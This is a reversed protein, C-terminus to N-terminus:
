LLDREITAITQEIFEACQQLLEVIPKGNAAAVETVTVEFAFQVEERFPYNSRYLEVGDKLPSVRPANDPRIWGMTFPKGDPGPGGIRFEGEPGTFMMPVAWQAITDAHAAGVPIIGKHKDLVDLEHLVYLFPNGGDYPKLDSIFRQAQPSTLAIKGKADAEYRKLTGAIPFGTRRTPQKRNAVVLDCVLQDLASRLNHVADGIITTWHAPIKQSIHLTYVNEGTKADRHHRIEYPKGDYFAGIEKELDAIHSKAREVKLKPGALPAAKM